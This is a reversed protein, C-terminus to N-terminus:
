PTQYLLAPSFEYGRNALTAWLSQAHRASVQRSCPDVTPLLRRRSVLSRIANELRVGSDSRREFDRIFDVVAAAGPTLSLLLCKM